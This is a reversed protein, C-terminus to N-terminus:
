GPGSEFFDVAFFFEREASVRRLEAAGVAMSVMEVEIMDVMRYFVGLFEGGEFYEATSMGDLYNMLRAMEAMERYLAGASGWVESLAVQYEVVPCGQTIGGTVAFELKEDCVWRWPLAAWSASGRRERVSPYRDGIRDLVAALEVGTGRQRVMPDDMRSIVEVAEELRDALWQLEFEQKSRWGKRTFALEAEGFREVPLERWWMGLGSPGPNWRVYNEGLPVGSLGGGGYEEYFDVELVTLERELGTAGHLVVPRGFAGLEVPEGYAVAVQTEGAKLIRGAEGSIEYEGDPVPEGFGSGAAGPGGSGMSYVLWGGLVALVAIGAWTGTKGRFWDGNFAFKIWWPRWWAGRRSLAREEALM